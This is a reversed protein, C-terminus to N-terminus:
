VRVSIKLIDLEGHTYTYCPIPPFTPSGNLSPATFPPSGDWFVLMELVRVQNIKSELLTLGLVIVVKEIM